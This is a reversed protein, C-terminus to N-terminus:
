TIKKTLWIVDKFHDENYSWHHREAGIFPKKLKGAMIKAKYKEPYAKRYKGQNHFRYENTPSHKHKYGLRHYKERHRSREADVGSPTSLIIDHRKKSDLKTCDKCKNLHGDGMQPHRYFNSLPQMGREPCRFCVKQDM